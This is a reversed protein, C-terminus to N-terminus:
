LKWIESSTKSFQQLPGGFMKELTTMTLPFYKDQILRRIQLAM